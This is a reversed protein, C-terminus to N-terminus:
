LERPIPVGSRVARVILGAAAQASLHQESNDLFDALNRCLPVDRHEVQWVMGDELFGDDAVSCFGVKFGDSPRQSFVAGVVFQGMPVPVAKGAMRLLTTPALDFHDLESFGQLRLFEAASLKRVTDGMLVAVPAIG